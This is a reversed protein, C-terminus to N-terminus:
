PITATACEKLRELASATIEKTRLNYYKKAETLEPRLLQEECREYNTLALQYAEKCPITNVVEELSNQYNILAQDIKKELVKGVPIKGKLQEMYSSRTNLSLQDSGYKSQHVEEHEELTQLSSEVGTLAKELILRTGTLSSVRTARKLHELSESISQEALECGCAIFQEKSKEIANLAKYAYFRSSNLDGADLAKRTQKQIYGINSGMYECAKNASFSSLALALVFILILHFTRM